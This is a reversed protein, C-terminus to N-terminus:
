PKAPPDLVLTKELRFGLQSEAPVRVEKGRTFAETVFGGGAGALAGTGAGKGGGFIGGILAGLASGGEPFEATRPNAGLGKRNTEKIDSTAVRYPRNDVTISYLDLVLEPSHVLGGRSIKRISLRAGSGAQIVIHGTTGPVNGVITAAYTQGEISETSDIREDTLLLLDTGAPIVLADSPVPQSSVDNFVIADIDRLPFEHKLGQSDQFSVTYAGTFHGSYSKGSRLTVTDTSANFAVSQVRKSPFEYKVGRGDAFNVVRVGSDGSYSSGDRLIITDASALPVTAFLAAAFYLCQKRM